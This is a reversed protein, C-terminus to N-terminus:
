SAEAASFQVTAPVLEHRDADATGYKEKYRDILSNSLHSLRESFIVKPLSILSNIGAKSSCTREGVQVINKSPSKSPVALCKKGIPVESGRATTVNARHTLGLRESSRSTTTSAIQVL